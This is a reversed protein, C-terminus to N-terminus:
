AQALLRANVKGLVVETILDIQAISTRVRDLYRGATERDKLAKANIAVNLAAGQAAAGAFLAACGIDSIANPNGFDVLEAALKCAEVASDVIRLPPDAADRLAQQLAASRKAKEADTSRPLKMAASVADFAAADEDVCRVLMEVIAAARAGIGDARQAADAMKPSNATLLAVMRVLAAALAGVAASASGGGPTPDGSSLRRAFDDLSLESVAV